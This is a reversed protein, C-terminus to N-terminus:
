HAPKDLSELGLPLLAAAVEAEAPPWSKAHGRPEGRRPGPSQRAGAGARASAELRQIQPCGPNWSCLSGQSGVWRRPLFALANRLLSPLFFVFLSPFLFFFGVGSSDGAARNSPGGFVNGSHHPLAPLTHVRSHTHTHTQFSFSTRLWRVRFGPSVTPLVMSASCSKGGSGFSATDSM